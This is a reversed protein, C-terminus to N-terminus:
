AGTLGIMPRPGTFSALPVHTCLYHEKQTPRNGPEARIQDDDNGRNGSDLERLTISRTSFDGAYPFLV